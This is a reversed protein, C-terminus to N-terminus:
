MWFFTSYIINALAFQGKWGYSTEKLFHAKNFSM